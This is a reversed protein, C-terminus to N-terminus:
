ALIAQVLAEPDLPSQPVRARGLHRLVADAISHPAAPDFTQAPVCVDRVYSREPALIPKGLAAAEILPIGFSETASPFILADAQGLKALTQPRDMSGLNVIDPGDGEGLGAAHLYRVHVSRELTVELRPRVGADALLAWARYLDAHHKYAWGGAPYFFVTDRTDTQQGAFTPLPLDFLPMVRVPRGGAVLTLARAMHATQTWYEDINPRGLRLTLRELALRVHDRASWSARPRGPVLFASRLYLITRAPSRALPPANNFAFLRDGAQGATALARLALLRAAISPAVATLAVGPALARAEELFRTDVFAHRLHPALAPLLARLLVAGGGSHLAHAGLVIRRM